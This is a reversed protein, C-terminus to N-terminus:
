HIKICKIKLATRKKLTYLVFISAFKVSKGYNLHLLYRFSLYTKTLTFNNVTRSIDTSASKFKKKHM